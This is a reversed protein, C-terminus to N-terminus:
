RLLSIYSAGAHAFGVLPGHFCTLARFGPGSPHGSLLRGQRLAALGIRPLQAARKGHTRVTLRKIIGVVVRAAGLCIEFVFAEAAGSRQALNSTTTTKFGSEHFAIAVASVRRWESGLRFRAFGSNLARSGGRNVANPGLNALSQNSLSTRFRVSM